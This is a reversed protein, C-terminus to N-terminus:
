TTVLDYDADIAPGAQPTTTEQVVGAVSYRVLATLVGASGGGNLTVINVTRGRIIPFNSASSGNRLYRKTSDFPGARFTLGNIYLRETSM